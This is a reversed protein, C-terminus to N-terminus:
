YMCIQVKKMGFYTKNIYIMNYCNLLFFYSTNFWTNSVAFSYFLFFLFTNFDHFLYNSNSNHTNTKQKRYKTHCLRRKRIHNRVVISFHVSGTRASFYESFVTFGHSAKTSVTDYFNIFSKMFLFPSLIVFTCTFTATVSETISFFILKLRMKAQRFLNRNYFCFWWISLLNFVVLLMCIIIKVCFCTSTTMWFVNDPRYCWVM